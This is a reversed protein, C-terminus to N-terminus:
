SSTSSSRSSHRRPDRQQANCLRQNCTAGSVEGMEVDWIFVTGKISTSALRQGDDSWAMSYIVGDQGTLTKSLEMTVTHWIKITADFSSTAMMTANTPSIACGFVTETHGPKSTFEKQKKKM